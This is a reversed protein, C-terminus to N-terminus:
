SYLCYSYLGYSYLGYSYLGRISACERLTNRYAVLQPEEVASRAMVICAIVICAMVECAMVECAM